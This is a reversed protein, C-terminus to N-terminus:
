PEAWLRLLNGISKDLLLRPEGAATADRIRSLDFLIERQDARRVLSQVWGVAALREGATVEEVRHLAGTSYVVLAGAAPKVAREGDTGELVLEGGEYAGLDSLFLTFSLDSRLLGEGEAMLADDMHAGYREGPGYRNFLVPSWRAPRAYAQFAGNRELAQRVFRALPEVRDDDGRAQRNAKVARAAGGATRRGDAFPAEALGRRVRDAEEASLVDAILLM